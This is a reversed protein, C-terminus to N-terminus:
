SFRVAELEEPAVNLQLRWRSVHRGEAPLLPDLSQYTNTLLNRLTDLTCANTLEYLELLYGLRRIVAGVGLRRAYEVLRETNLQEHKMWLGKAVETIGGILAPRRLGDIITREPDSVIVAQQKNIWHRMTGFVHADRVQSFDFPYGGVIQTRM